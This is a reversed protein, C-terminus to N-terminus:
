HLRLESFTSETQKGSEWGGEVFTNDEKKKDKLEGKDIKKMRHNIIYKKLKSKSEREKYTNTLM